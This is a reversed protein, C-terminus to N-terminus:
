KAGALYLCGLVPSCALSGTHFLQSLADQVPGVPCSPWFIVGFTTCRLSCLTYPFLTRPCSLQSNVAPAPCGPCSQQSLLTLITSSSCSLCLLFALVHCCLSSQQSLVLCFPVFTTPCVYYSLSSLVPLVPLKPCSVQCSLVCRLFVIGSDEFNLFYVKDTLTKQM